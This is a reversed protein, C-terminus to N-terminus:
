TAGEGALPSPSALNATAVPLARGAAVVENPRRYCLRHHHHCFPGIGNPAAGCFTFDPSQPDGIPYRCTQDTLKLLPVNLAKQEATQERPLTEAVADEFAYADALRQAPTRRSHSRRESVPRGTEAARRKRRMENKRAIRQESTLLRRTGNGLRLGLRIAKGIVANRTVGGLETAIQSASLGDTVLKTLTSVREPSWRERSHFNM